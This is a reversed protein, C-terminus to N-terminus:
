GTASVLTARANPVDVQVQILPDLDRFTRLFNQSVTEFRDFHPTPSDSRAGASDSDVCSHDFRASVLRSGRASRRPTTATPVVLGRRHGRLGVPAARLERRGVRVEVSQARM